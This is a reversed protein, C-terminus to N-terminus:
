QVKNRHKAPCTAVMPQTTPKSIDTVYAYMYM